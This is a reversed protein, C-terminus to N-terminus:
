QTRQQLAAKKSIIINVLNYRLNTNFATVKFVLKKKNTILNM